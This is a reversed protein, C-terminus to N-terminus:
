TPAGGGPPAGWGGPAVWGLPDYFIAPAGPVAEIAEQAEASWEDVPRLDPNGHGGDLGVLGRKPGAAPDGADLGLTILAAPGGGVPAGVVRLPATEGLAYFLHPPWRELAPSVLTPNTEQLLALLKRSIARRLALRGPPLPAAVTGIQTGTIEVMEPANARNFVLEFMTGEPLEVAM